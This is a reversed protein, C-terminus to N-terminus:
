WREECVRRAKDEALKQAANDTTSSVSLTGRTGNSCVYSYTYKLGSPVGPEKAVLSISAAMAHPAALAFAIVIIGAKFQPSM